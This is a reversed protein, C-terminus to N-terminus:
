KSQTITHLDLPIIEAPNNTNIRYFEGEKTFNNDRFMEVFPILQDILNNTIATEKDFVFTLGAHGGGRNTGLELHPFHITVKKDGSTLIQLSTTFATDKFPTTYQLIDNHNGIKKSEKFGHPSGFSAFINADKIPPITIKDKSEPIKKNEQSHNPSHEM